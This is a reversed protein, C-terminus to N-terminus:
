ERIVGLRNLLRAIDAAWEAVAEEDLCWQTAHMAEHIATEALRVPNRRLSSRLVIRKGKTTPKDCIGDTGRGPDGFEVKWRKGGLEAYM